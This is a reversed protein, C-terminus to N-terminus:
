EPADEAASPSEGKLLSVALGGGMTLAFGLGQVLNPQEGLVAWALFLTTVPGIMGIIAFQQPTTRKLGIALLLAPAVTGLVALTLGEGYVAVPQELLLRLPRALLDHVLIFVCSFGAALGTFRLSGVRRVMTGSLLIFVAYTLASAFILTTGLAVNQGGSPAHTEGAFAAVIGTWAVACAIWVAPRVRKQLVFASLALVISPYTYLIIRELGVSVYQLGTFNVLSSVYYGIFGLGVLHGWDTLTLRSAGRSGWIAMGAFFPLAFGMRLALVTIADAGHAYALKAVVGKSCFLISSAAVIAFTAFPNHTSPRPPNM